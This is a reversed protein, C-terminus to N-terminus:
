LKHTFLILPNNYNNSNTVTTKLPIFGSLNFLHKINMKAFHKDLCVYVKVYVVINNQKIFSRCYFEFAYICIYSTHHGDIKM